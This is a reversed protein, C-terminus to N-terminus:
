LQNVKDQFIRKLKDCEVSTHYHNLSGDKKRLCKLESENIQEQLSILEKPLEVYRGDQTQVRTLVSQKVEFECTMLVHWEGYTTKKLIVTQFGREHIIGDLLLQSVDLVSINALKLSKDGAGTLRATAESFRIYMGNQETQRMNGTAHHRMRGHHNNSIAKIFEKIRQAILDRHMYSLHPHTSMLTRNLQNVIYRHSFKKNDVTPQEHLTVMWNWLDILALADQEVYAIDNPTLTVKTRYTKKM